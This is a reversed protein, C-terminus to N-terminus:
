VGHASAAQETSIAPGPAAVWASLTTVIVAALDHSRDTATRASPLECLVAPMRTERLVPVRMGVPAVAVGLQPALADSLREALRRGGTSEFGTVAYYAVAAREGAVFGVYLTADFTNATAAHRSGDPDDVTIVIAGARRVSRSTARALTALGGGHGLVVRHGDLTRPASLLREHERLAAVPQADARRPGVRDLARVTDFGGIGDPDLGVNRQFEALAAVTAPGFIGDVRGADFGLRGLQRQLEAVDDGRLMPARLYLVRDGLAYSAEVLAAWTQEGCVGDTHLGRSTQFATVADLTAPCYVGPSATAVGFGAAGLRRQLDRM